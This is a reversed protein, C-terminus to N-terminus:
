QKTIRKIIIDTKTKVKLFYLGAPQGDLQFIETQSTPTSLRTVQRLITGKVDIIQLTAEQKIPLHWEVLLNNTVPNPYAVISIPEPSLQNGLPVNVRLVYPAGVEGPGCSSTLNSITYTTTSTPRVWAVYLSDKSNNIIVPKTNWNTTFTWPADGTLRVRIATSDGPYIAGDGSITATAKPSVRVEVTSNLSECNNADKQTVYYTTTNAQNTSPLVRTM